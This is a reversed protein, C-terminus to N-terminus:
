TDLAPNSTTKSASSGKRTSHVSRAPPAAAAPLRSEIEEIKSYCDAVIQQLHRHDSVASGEDTCIKDRCKFLVAVVAIGAAAAAVSAWVLVTTKKDAQM